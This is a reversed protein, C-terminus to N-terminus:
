MDTRLRNVLTADDGAYESKFENLLDIIANLDEPSVGGIGQQDWLTLYERAYAVNVYEDAQAALKGYATLWNRMLSAFQAEPSTTNVAGPIGIFPNPSM